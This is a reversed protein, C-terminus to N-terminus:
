HTPHAVPDPGRVIRLRVITGRAAQGRESTLILRDPGDFTVGEGQPEVVPIAIGGRTGEPTVEWGNRLRFFHLSVYTRVVLLSDGPAVAAGTVLRGRLLGSLMELPGVEVLGRPGGPARGDARFLLPCGSVDKTVLLITGDGTVALAEADHPRGPYRFVLSDLLPVTGLTDSAGSPPRPERLRYVVIRKRHRGNDGIDGVYLCRGPAVICPGAALDEWDTAHAGDVRVRGLDRGSSDTAYLFPGDGSDNHTWVVGPVLASMAAGSSEDLRPALLPATDLVTLRVSTQAPAPRSLAFAAVLPFLIGVAASSRLTTRTRRVPGHRTPHVRDTM